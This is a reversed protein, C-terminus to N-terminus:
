IPRWVLDVVSVVWAVEVVIILLIVLEDLSKCSVVRNNMVVRVHVVRGVMLGVVFKVMVVIVLM